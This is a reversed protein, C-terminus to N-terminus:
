PRRAVAEDHQRRPPTRIRPSTRREARPRGWAIRPWRRVRDVDQWATANDANKKRIGLIQWGNGDHSAPLRQAATVCDDKEFEDNATAFAVVATRSDLRQLGTCVCDHSATPHRQVVVCDDIIM